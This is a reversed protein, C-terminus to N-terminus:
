SRAVPTYLWTVQKLNDQPWVKARINKAAGKEALDSGFVQKAAALPTTAEIERLPDGDPLGDTYVQVAFLRM